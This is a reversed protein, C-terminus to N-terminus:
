ARGLARRVTRDSVRLGAQAEFDRCISKALVGAVGDPYTEAIFLALRERLTNKRGALRKPHAPINHALLAKKLWSDFEVPSFILNEAWNINQPDYRKIKRRAEIIKRYTLRMGGHNIETDLSEPFAPRLAGKAVADLSWNWLKRPAIGYQATSDEILDPLSEVAL